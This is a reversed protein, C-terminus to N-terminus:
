RLRWGDSSWLASYVLGPRRRRGLPWALVASRRNPVVRTGIPPTYRGPLAGGALDAKRLLRWVSAMGCFREPSHDGRRVPMRFALNPFARRILARQAPIDGSAEATTWAAIADATAAGEASEPEGLGAAARQPGPHM